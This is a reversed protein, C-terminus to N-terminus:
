PSKVQAELHRIKGEYEAIDKTDELSSVFPIFYVEDFFLQLQALRDSPTTGCEVVISRGTEKDFAM